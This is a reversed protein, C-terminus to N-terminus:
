NWLPNGFGKFPPVCNVPSPPDNKLFAHGVASTDQGTASYVWCPCDVATSNCVAFVASTGDAPDVFKLNSTIRGNPDYAKAASTAQMSDYEGLVVCDYFLQGFGNKHSTQCFGACCDPTPCECGDDPAPAPPQSCNSFGPTCTSPCLGGACAPMAVNAGARCARGCQGCDSVSTTLDTECGDGADGDCNGFHPLCSLSCDSGCRGDIANCCTAGCISATSKAVYVCDGGPAPCTGRYCAPPTPPAFCDDSTCCTDSAICAGNCLKTHTPALAVECGDSADHNCDAWGVDCTLGCNDGCSGDLPDCCTAGCPTAARNGCGIQIPTVQLDFCLQGNEPLQQELCSNGTAMTM